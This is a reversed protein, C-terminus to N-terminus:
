EDKANPHREKYEHLARNIHYSKYYKGLSKLFPELEPDARFSHVRRKTM